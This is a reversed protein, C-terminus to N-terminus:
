NNATSSNRQSPTHAPEGATKLAPELLHLSGIIFVVIRPAKTAAPSSTPTM